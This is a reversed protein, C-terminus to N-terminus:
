PARLGALFSTSNAMSRKPMEIEGETFLMTLRVRKSGDEAGQDATRKGTVSIIGSM